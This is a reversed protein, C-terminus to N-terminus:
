YIGPDVYEQCIVPSKTLIIFIDLAHSIVAEHRSNRALHITKTVCAQPWLHPGVKALQHLGTLSAKKVAWRKDKVLYELLLEVQCYLLTFM